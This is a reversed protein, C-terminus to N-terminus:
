KIQFECTINMSNEADNLLIVERTEEKDTLVIVLLCELYEVTPSSTITLDM